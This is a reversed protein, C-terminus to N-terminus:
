ATALQWRQQLYYFLKYLIYIHIFGFIEFGILYWPWEGIVLPNAALPRHCLYMYNANLLYNITGVVLMIVNGLIFAYLWSRQRIPRKKAFFFYLPYVVITGHGLYYDIVYNLGQGDTLEPTLLAHIGGPMGLLLLFEYVNQNFRLLLWMLAFRSIDCMHLPLSHSETWSNHTIDLYQVYVERLVLLVFVTYHIFRVKSPARKEVTFLLIGFLIVSILGWTWTEGFVPITVHRSMEEM